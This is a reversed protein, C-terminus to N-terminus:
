GIEVFFEPYKKKFIEKVKLAEKKTKFIGFVTPGKGTISAGLAGFSILSNKIEKIIPFKEEAVIEFDNYLWNSIKELNYLDNIMKQSINKRKTDEMFWMRKDLEGYAWGTGIEGKPNILLFNLKPFNKIPKLKEGAGSVYACNEKQLFFPIDKGVEAGVEVLKKFSLVNDFYENLALLVSAGNSSGGGLGALAPIRKKIKITIGIKKKTVEFFKEAIKWCINKEDTPISKDNCSIKIGEKKEDFIIEIEDYLNETKVMVSRLGHFGNPLKKIIELTLNIKSSSITKIKKMKSLIIM